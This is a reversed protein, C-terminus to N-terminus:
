FHAANVKNKAILSIWATDLIKTDIFVKAMTYISVLGGKDTLIEM